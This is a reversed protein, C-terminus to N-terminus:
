KNTKFNPFYPVHLEQNGSFFVNPSKCCQGKWRPTMSRAHKTGRTSKLSSVNVIALASFVLLTVEATRRDHERNIKEVKKESVGVGVCFYVSAVSRDIRFLHRGTRYRWPTHARAHSFRINSYFDDVQRHVTRVCPPAALLWSAVCLCHPPVMCKLRSLFPPSPNYSFPTIVAVRAFGCPVETMPRWPTQQVAGVCLNNEWWVTPIVVLPLLGM